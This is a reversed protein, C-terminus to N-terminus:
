RKTRIEEDNERVSVNAIDKQVHVIVQGRGTGLMINHVGRIVRPLIMANVQTEQLYSLIQFIAEHPINLEPFLANFMQAVKEDNHNEVQHYDYPDITPLSTINAM